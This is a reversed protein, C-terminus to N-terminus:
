HRTGFANQRPSKTPLAYAIESYHEALACLHPILEQKPADTQLELELLANTLAIEQSEAKDSSWLLRNMLVVKQLATVQLRKDSTLTSYFYAQKYYFRALRFPRNLQSRDEPLSDAIKGCSTLIATLECPSLHRGLAAARASELLSIVVSYGSNKRQEQEARKLYAEAPAPKGDVFISQPEIKSEPEFLLSDIQHPVSAQMGDYWQTPKATRIATAKAHCYEAISCFEWIPLHRCGRPEEFMVNLEDLLAAVREPSEQRLWAAGIVSLAAAMAQRKNVLQIELDTKYLLDTLQVSSILWTCIAAIAVCGVAVKWTEKM